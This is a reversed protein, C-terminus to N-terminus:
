GKFNGAQGPIMFLNNFSSPNAILQESSFLDGSRDSTKWASFQAGPAQQAGSQPFCPASARIGNVWRIQECTFFLAHVM